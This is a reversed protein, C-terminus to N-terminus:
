VVSDSTDMRYEHFKQMLLLKNTESTREHIAILKDWMDKATVCTILRELQSYEMATSFLFMAKANDKNWTKIQALVQAANAAGVAAQEPKVREGIVVDDIAYAAFVARM